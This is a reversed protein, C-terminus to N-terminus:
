RKLLSLSLNRLNEEMITIYNINAQKKEEPTLGAAPNLTLVETNTAKAITKAISHSILPEAYVATINHEKIIEVLAKLEKPTPEALPSIGMIPIQKLGYDRALYGFAAHTTVFEKHRADEGLKTFEKDLKQLKVIYKKANEEYIVKNKPDAKILAEKINKVEEIANKPSIWTHPDNEQSFLGKAAEVANVKDSGIAAIAQPAWGEVIGNYVFLKAKKIAKLDQASPEWAHPEVGDPILVSVNVKDGGVNKTFEAMPYFSTVVQLKEQANENAEKNKDKLDGCASVLVLAILSLSVLIIRLFKNNM